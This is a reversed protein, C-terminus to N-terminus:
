ELLSRRWPGPSTGIMRGFVRTFNSQDSFGCTLAVDALSIAGDRLLRIMRNNETCLYPVCAVSTAHRNHQLILSIQRFHGLGKWAM